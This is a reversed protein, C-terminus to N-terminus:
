FRYNIGCLFWFGPQPTNGYDYYTKNLLNNLEAYIKYKQAEWAIRLDLLGVSGYRELSGDIKQYNGVRNQYRYAANLYLKSFINVNLGAIFKHKLYELSYKSQIYPEIAKNQDIYSYSLTINRLLTQSPFLSLFNLACTAEFGVSNIKTHNVSQWKAEEAQRTDKIWDIMNKGHHYYVSSTAKLLNSLYKVGFEYATIEEPKLFKDAKYGEVSYYLDTFSPMRLSTNFSAYVKLGDSVRLSADAGPYFRFGRENWTNKVAIIGASLTFRQLVLNHELHFSINSRNLGFLYERNTNNIHRPKNLPEGLNGSVLDENRFEAGFATKGLKWEVFSNINLGYVDTRHYNFPIKEESGRVMEFRDINRRWYVSPSFCLKGKTQAQMSLHYKETHEFQEDFKASWFTNSGYDKQTFGALLRVDAEKGSYNGTYLLRANKYDSNLKGTKSRSYGDSKTYGGSIQNNFQGSVVNARAGAAMYGYSGGEMHVDASTKEETRTVINIAGVLSSTGYVRGAPGELVEIREIESIDVPFDATNHGTQPDCINIGNLLIAIQESTGGRLSIDTQAGFPGRQRVDVGTVYKLLDNISQAPVAAIAERDLIRVMRPAQSLKLPVRSSTVTVENLESVRIVKHAVEQATVMTFCSICLWSAAIRKLIIM